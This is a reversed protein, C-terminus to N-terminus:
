WFLTRRKTLKGAIKFKKKRYKAGWCWNKKGKTKVILEDAHVNGKIEPELTETFNNIIQSYDQSLLLIMWRSVM